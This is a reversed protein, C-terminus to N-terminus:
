APGGLSSPSIMMDRLTNEVLASDIGAEAMRGNALAFLQPWPTDRAPIEAM